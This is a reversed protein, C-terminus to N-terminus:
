FQYKVTAAWSRGPMPYFRIIEYHENLINKIDLRLQLKNNKYKFDRYATIGMETYGDIMTGPYHENNAWRSSVHTGHVSMNVWPNEWGASASGSHEPTYALQMNYYPSEPTTRNTVKQYTYNGAFTLMHRDGIEHKVAITADAGITRVKGYNINTWIFMNEPVAVIKDKVHNYYADLSLTMNSRKGYDHSWTAGMNFQNTCEPDLTPSGYHHYYLENFSPSRFIDKYSARVYLKEDELLQYSVSVSPSMHNIDKASAGKTAGNFYLSYLARAMATFRKTTYKTTLSQLVTHRLPDSYNSQDSGTLNNFIYDASYDLAWHDNFRQLLCASAYAERQWYKHDMVGGPYMGNKYDTIAYNFKSTVALSLGKGNFIRYNLQAFANQDHESEKSLNTYYHVSGPLRRDNDYYYLKLAFQNCTNPQWVVNAEGHGSNMMSNSRRRVTVINNNHTTFPYDNEAYIYEGSVSLSLKESLNKDYRVFPNTHGWAGMRMQATLRHNTDATPTNITSINLTAASAANRAPQFIDANDGVVLSINDINDLSYRSVDISGSQCDSLAVGDYIVGTHQTGFGRVSVTKMGGAGGYDRLTVGPLRHMADTINSIGMSGFNENSLTYAPASSTIDREARTSVVDVMRLTDNREARDNVQACLPMVATAFATAAYARIIINNRIGLEM